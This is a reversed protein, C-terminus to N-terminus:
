SARRLSAYIAKNVKCIYTYKPNVVQTCRAEDIQGLLRYAEAAPVGWDQELWYVMEQFAIRMADELPRACATTRIHTPTEIRPHNLTTPAPSLRTRVTLRAALEIAGMGNM